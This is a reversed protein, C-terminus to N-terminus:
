LKEERSMRKFFSVVSGILIAVIIVAIVNRITIFSLMGGKDNERNPTPSSTPTNDEKPFVVTDGGSYSNENGEGDEAYIIYQLVCNRDIPLDTYYQKLGTDYFMTANGEDMVGSKYTASYVVYPPNDTSIGSGREGPDTIKAYLRVRDNLTEVRVDTIAPPRSDIIITFERGGHKTITFLKDKVVDGNEYRVKIKHEGIVTFECVGSGTENLNCVKDEYVVRGMTIRNGDDDIVHIKIPVIILPIDLYADDNNVSVNFTRVVGSENVSITYQGNPAAFVVLGRDDTQRTINNLSVHVGELPNKDQDYVHIIVAYLPLKVAVRKPGKLATLPVTTSYGMYSVYVKYNYDTLSEQYETNIFRYTVAGTEDTYFPKTTVVGKIHNLQHEVVVEAGEVLRGKADLVIITRNEVYGAYSIMVLLMLIIMVKNKM